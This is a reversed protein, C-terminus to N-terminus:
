GRRPRPLGEVRRVQSEVVVREVGDVASRIRYQLEDGVLPLLRVVIHPGRPILAHPGDCPTEVTQGLKFRHYPMPDFTASRWILRLRAGAEVKEQQVGEMRSRASRTM